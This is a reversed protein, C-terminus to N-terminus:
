AATAPVFASVSFSLVKLWISSSAWSASRALSRM